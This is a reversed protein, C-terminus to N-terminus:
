HRAHIIPARPPALPGLGEPAGDIREEIEEVAIGLQLETLNVTTTIDLHLRFAEDSACGLPHSRGPRTLLSPHVDRSLHHVVRLLPADTM